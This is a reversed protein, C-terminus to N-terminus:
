GYARSSGNQPRGRRARCLGQEQVADRVGDDSDHRFIEEVVLAEGEPCRPLEGGGVGGLAVVAGGGGDAQAGSDGRLLRLRVQQGDQALDRGFVYAFAPADAEDGQRLLEGIANAGAEQHREAGHGEHEQDRAEVDGIQQQRAGRVAGAFDGHAGGQAGSAQAHDALEEGFAQQEGGGAADGTQQEACPARAGQHRKNGSRSGTGRRSWAWRSEATRRKVRATVTIVPTTKPSAGASCAVREFRVTDSFSPPRPVEDPAREPRTRLKRTIASVASERMRSTPAPSM